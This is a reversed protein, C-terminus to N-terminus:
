YSKPFKKTKLWSQWQDMEWKGLSNRCLEPCSYWAIPREYPPWKKAFIKLKLISAHEETKSIHPKLRVLAVLREGWEEVELPILLITEISKLM